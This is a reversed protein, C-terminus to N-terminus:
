ESATERVPGVFGGMRSLMGCRARHRIQHEPHLRRGQLQQQKGEADLLEPGDLSRRQFNRRTRHRGTQPSTTSEASQMAHSLSCLRTRNVVRRRKEFFTEGDAASVPTGTETSERPTRESRCLSMTGITGRKEAWVRSCRCQDQEM